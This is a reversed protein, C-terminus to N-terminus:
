QGDRGRFIPGFQLEFVRRFDLGRHRLRKLCFKCIKVELRAVQYDLFDRAGLLSYRNQRKKKWHQRREDGSRYDIAAVSSFIRLLPRMEVDWPYVTQGPLVPKRFPCVARWCDRARTIGETAPVKESAHEIILLEICASPFKRALENVGWRVDDASPADPDLPNEVWVLLVRRSARIRAYFRVIRREYKRCVEDYCDDFSRNSSFDHLFRFGTRVNEYGNHVGVTTKGILKFDDKVMWNSFDDVILQIRSCFDAGTLWDFPGSSLRLGADRLVTACLCSSGLSCVYDFTEKKM